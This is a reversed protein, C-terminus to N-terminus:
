NTQARATKQNLRDRPKCPANGLAAAKDASQISKIGQILSKSELLLTKNEPLLSAARCASKLHTRLVAATNLAVACQSTHHLTHGRPLDPLSGSLLNSLRPDLTRNTDRGEQNTFLPTLRSYMQAAEAIPHLVYRFM